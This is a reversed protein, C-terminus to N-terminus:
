LSVHREPCHSILACTREHMPRCADCVRDWSGESWQWKNCWYCKRHGPANPGAPKILPIRKGNVLIMIRAM